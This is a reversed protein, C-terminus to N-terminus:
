FHCIKRLEFMTFFIFLYFIQHFDTHTQFHERELTVKHGKTKASYAIIYKLVRYQLTETLTNHKGKIQRNCKM